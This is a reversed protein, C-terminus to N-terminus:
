LVQFGLAPRLGLRCLAQADRLRSYRPQEFALPLIETQIHQQRQSSTGSQLGFQCQGGSAVAERLARITDAPMFCKRSATDATKTAAVAGIPSTACVSGFAGVNTTSAPQGCSGFLQTSPSTVDIETSRLSRM